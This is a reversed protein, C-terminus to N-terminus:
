LRAFDNIIAIGMIMMLVFAGIRFGMEQVRESVPKGRILEIFFYMLHGGDLVPLPLLNVVGLNVSILALFSLFYVIGSQASVGAGQAIAIPGSLNNLGIDGTLLKGIMQFSLSILAWTKEFSKELAPFIGYQQEFVYGKPWNEVVPAVGLYGQSFGDETQRADPIVKLQILRSDRLVEVILEQEPANSIFEVAQQWNDLPTQSISVIEDKVKLGAREAASGEVVQGITLTAQPRYPTIGLGSLVRGEDVTWDTTDFILQQETGDRKVTVQVQDSGVQQIFAFNATEWDVVKNGEVAVIEDLKQMNANASISNEAIEGIVPKVAPVGILFMLIFAFVAFIFNAMPGAAVVAIRQGVKKNNFTEPLDKEVVDDVRTDLMRVYGGLPIIGISYETGLKDHWTVIPKGFGIAFKLVKIGNRRAVWFHGYEHVFILIGLCVIFSVVTWLVGPM